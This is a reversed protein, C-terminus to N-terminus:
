RERSARDRAELDALRQKIVEIQEDTLVQRREVQDLRERKRDLRAEIKGLRAASEAAMGEILAPLTALGAFVDAQADGRKFLEDLRKLTYTWRQEEVKGREALEKGLISKFTQLLGDILRSTTGNVLADGMRNAALVIQDSDGAMTAAAWLQAAQNREWDPGGEPRTEDSM